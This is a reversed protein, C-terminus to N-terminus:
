DTFASHHGSATMDNVKLCTEISKSVHIVIKYNRINRVIIFLYKLAETHRDDSVNGLGDLNYLSRIKIHM